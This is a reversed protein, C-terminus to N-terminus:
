GDRDDGCDVGWSSRDVRGCFHRVDEIGGLDSGVGRLDLEFRECTAVLGNWLDGGGLVAMEGLYGWWYNSVLLLCVFCVFLAWVEGTRIGVPEM